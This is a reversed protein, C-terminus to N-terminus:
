PQIGAGVVARGPRHLSRGHRFTGPYHLERRPAPREPHHCAIQFRDALNFAKVTLWFADEVSGPAFVVRAFEGHHATLAFSLDGQETRTPLGVCPGPRQGDIIVLPTETIAALGYGEVMLCFGSGSTATMARAGAFSAGVAMNVASIEDEAQIFVLGLEAAKGAFYELIPTSPTMPYAAMFTCGAAIAGLGIAENGNMVLQLNEGEGPKLAPRLAAPHNKKVYNYGSMAAKINSDAIAKEDFRERLVSNLIEIDLNLIAAVAGVMVTNVMIRGGAEEALRLLPIPLLYPSAKVGSIDKEEAVIVGSDKVQDLHLAITEKNMALLIDLTEVAARVPEGSVRFRFFYHGGRIRSEYDQDAFVHYGMRATIKSLIYGVTQVGQGAEGGALINIENSM